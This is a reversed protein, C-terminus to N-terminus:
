MTAPRMRRPSSGPVALNQYILPEVRSRSAWKPWRAVKRLDHLRNPEQCMGSAGGVALSTPKGAVAPCGLPDPM